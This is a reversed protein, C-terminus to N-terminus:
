HRKNDTNTTKKSKRNKEVTAPSKEWMCSSVNIIMTPFLTAINQFQRFNMIKEMKQLVESHIRYKQHLFQGLNNKLRPNPIASVVQRFSDGGDADLIFLCSKESMCKTVNQIMSKLKYSRSKVSIEEIASALKVVTVITADNIKRKLIEEFPQLLDAKLFEHRFSVNKSHYLDPYKRLNNIVARVESEWESYIDVVTVHVDTFIIVGESSLEGIFESIAKTVGIAEFAPGGGLCCIKLTNKSFLGRFQEEKRKLQKFFQFYVVATHIVSYSYMYACRTALKDYNIHVYSPSECEEMSNYKLKRIVKLAEKVEILFELSKLNYMNKIVNSYFDLFEAVQTTPQKKLSLLKLGEAM